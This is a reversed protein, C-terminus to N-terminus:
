ILRACDREFLPVGALSLLSAPSLPPAPTATVPLLWTVASSALTPLQTQVLSTAPAASVPPTEPAPQAACCAMARCDCCCSRTPRAAGSAPAAPIAPMWALMLSCVLALAMKM